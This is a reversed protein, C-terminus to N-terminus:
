KSQKLAYKKSDLNKSPYLASKSKLIPKKIKKGIVAKIAKYLEFIGVLILFIAFILRLTKGQIQGVLLATLVATAIAPVIIVFFVKYDLLKNKAHIILAIVATPIFVLLNMAQAMHQEVGLALTLIPILLTGGGMGMGGCVGACLGALIYWFM